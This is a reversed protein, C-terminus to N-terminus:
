HIGLKEILAAVAGDMCEPLILNCRQRVEEPANGVCAATGVHELVELDNYFDGIFIVQDLPIDMKECMKKLTPYKGAGENMIEVFDPATYEIRVGDPKQQEALKAIQPTDEPSAVFIIRYWPKGIDEIPLKPYRGEENSDKGTEVQWYGERNVVVLSCEPFNEIFRLAFSMAHEPVFLEEWTEGTNLDCMACGGNVISPINVPTDQLFDRASDPARGTCVGFKGGREVFAKIAQKNEPPVGQGEIGLTGDLDSFVYYLQSDIM